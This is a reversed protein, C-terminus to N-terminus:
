FSFFVPSCCFFFARHLLLRVIAYFQSLTCLVYEINVSYFDLFPNIPLIINTEKNKPLVVSSAFCCLFLFSKIFLFACEHPHICFSEVSSRRVSPSVRDPIKNNSHNKHISRIGNTRHSTFRQEKVHVHLPGDCCRYLCFIGVHVSGWRTAASNLAWNQM